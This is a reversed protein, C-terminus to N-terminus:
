GAGGSGRTPRLHKDFWGVIRRLREVRNNPRGSRSLDHSEGEFWCFEVEKGMLRLAVFYEEAQEIPCRHDQDSQIILLPTTVQEAYALGSKRWVKALDSWPTAELEGRLHAVGIDAAGHQSIYNVISRQTVAARFRDTHGVIWNTLIGGCSGGTVGMREADIFAFRDLLDDVGLMIEQYDVDDDNGVTAATWAEGYGATTGRQNFYAVAYGAQAMVQNEFNFDYSFMSCHVQLILPHKEAASANVPRM